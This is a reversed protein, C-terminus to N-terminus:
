FFFYVSFELPFTGITYILARWSMSTSTETHESYCLLVSPVLKGDFEQQGFCYSNRDYMSNDELLNVQHNNQNFPFPTPNSDVFVKM